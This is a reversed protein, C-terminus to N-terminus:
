RLVIAYRLNVPGLSLARDVVTGTGRVTGRAQRYIRTGGVISGRLTQRAHIGDRAFHQTISVRTRITGDPLVFAMSGQTRTTAGSAPFGDIKTLCTTQTGGGVIRARIFLLCAETASRTPSGAVRVTTTRAKAGGCGALLFAFALIAAGPRV